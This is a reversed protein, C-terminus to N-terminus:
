GHFLDEVAIKRKPPSIDAKETLWILSSMATGQCSHDSRFTTWFRGWTNQRTNDGESAHPTNVLEV